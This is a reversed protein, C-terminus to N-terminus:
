EMGFHALQYEVGVLSTAGGDKQEEGESVARAVYGAMEARYYLRDLLARPYRNWERDAAEDKIKICLKNIRFIEKSVTIDVQIKTFTPAGGPLCLGLGKIAIEGETEFAIDVHAEPNAKTGDVHSFSFRTSGVTIRKVSLVDSFLPEFNDRLLERTPALYDYMTEGQKQSLEAVLSRAKRELDKPTRKKDNDSAWKELRSYANWLRIPRCSLAKAISKVYKEKLITEGAFLRGLTALSPPAFAVGLSFIKKKLGRMENQDAISQDRAGVLASLFVHTLRAKDDKKMMM